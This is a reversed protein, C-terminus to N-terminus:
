RYRFMGALNQKLPKSLGFHFFYDHIAIDRMGAIDRWPISNYKAKLEDPINKSAEGIVEICRIVANCTKSDHCFQEFSLDNTYEQIMASYELIDKILFDKSRKM